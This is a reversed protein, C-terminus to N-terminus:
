KRKVVVKTSVYKDLAKIEKAIKAEWEKQVREILSHNTEFDYLHNISDLYTVSYYSFIDEIKEYPNESIIIVEESIEKRIIRTVLEAIDFHLQEHKLLTKSNKDKSWSHNKRFSNAIKYFVNAKNIQTQEMLLNVSTNAQYSSLSDVTGRFDEWSLKLTAKWLILSDTKTLNISDNKFSYESQNSKLAFSIGVIALSIIITTKM